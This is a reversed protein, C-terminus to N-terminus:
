SKKMNGGQEPGDPLWGELLKEMDLELAASLEPLLSIDPLGLGREWKSIAKDTVRLLEALQNQTMNKEQRVTRILQGVKACDM